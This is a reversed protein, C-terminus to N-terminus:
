NALTVIVVDSYTGSAAPTTGTLSGLITFDHPSASASAGFTGTGGTGDGWETTGTTYLHYDLTETGGQRTLKRTTATSDLGGGANATVTYDNSSCLVTLTGKQTETSFSVGANVAPFNISAINTISCTSGVSVQVNLSKTDFTTTANAAYMGLALAVAALASRSVFKRM